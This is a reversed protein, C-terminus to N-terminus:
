RSDEKGNAVEIPVEYVDVDAPVHGGGMQLFRTECGCFRLSWGRELLRELVVDRAKDSVHFRLQSGPKLPLPSTVYGGLLAIREAIAAAMEQRQTLPAMM